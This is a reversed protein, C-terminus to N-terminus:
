IDEAGKLSVQCCLFYIFHYQTVSIDTLYEEWKNNVPEKTIKIFFRDRLSTDCDQM